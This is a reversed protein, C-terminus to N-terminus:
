QARREHVRQEDKLIRIFTWLSPHRNGILRNWRNNYSEVANNSRRDMERKHVNWTISSFRCGRQVWTARVYAFLRRMAPYQSVMNPTNTIITRFCHGVFSLPLYGLAMIRRITKKVKPVNRYATALGCEQVRRWISQCFHFYCGLINVGPFVSTAAQQIALEFDCIVNAPAWNPFGLTTLRAKISGFLKEYSAQAKDALLGSALKFLHANM